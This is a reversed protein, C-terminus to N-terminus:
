KNKYYYDYLDVKPEEEDFDFEFGYDTFNIDLFKGNFYMFNSGYETEPIEHLFEKFDETTNDIKDSHSEYNSVEVFIDIDKTNNFGKKLVGGYLYIKNIDFDINEKDKITELVNEIKDLLKNYDLQNNIDENLMKEKFTDLYKRMEKSM